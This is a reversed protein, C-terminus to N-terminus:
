ITNVNFLFETLLARQGKRHQGKESGRSQNNVMPMHPAFSTKASMAEVDLGRTAWKTAGGSHRRKQNAQEFGLGNREDLEILNMRLRIIEVRPERMARTDMETRAKAEM